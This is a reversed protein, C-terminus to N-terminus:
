PNIMFVAFDRYKVSKFPYPIRDGANSRNWVVATGSKKLLRPLVTMFADFLSGDDGDHSLRGPVSLITEPPNLMPMNWLVFDFGSFDKPLSTKTVDGVAAEVAFGALMAVAKTNAVAMPNIDVVYIRDKARLWAAWADAGTGPGVVLVKDNSRIGAAGLVADFYFKDTELNVGPSYVTPFVPIILSDSKKALRRCIEGLTKRDRIDKSYWGTKKDAEIYCLCSQSDLIYPAFRQFDEAVTQGRSEGSGSLLVLPIILGALFISTRRIM